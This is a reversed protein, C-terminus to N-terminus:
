AIKAHFREQPVVAQAEPPLMIREGDPSLLVDGDYWDYEAELDGCEEREEDTLLHPARERLTVLARYRAFARDREASM